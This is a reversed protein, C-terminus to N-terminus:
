EMGIWIINPTPYYFYLSVFDFCCNRIEQKKRRTEDSGRVDHQRDPKEDTTARHQRYSTSLELIARADNQGTQGQVDQVDPQGSDRETAFVVFYNLLLREYKEVLYRGKAKNM